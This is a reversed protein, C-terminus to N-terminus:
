AYHQDPIETGGDDALDDVWESLSPDARRQEVMLDLAREGILRCKSAILLLTIFRAESPDLDHLAAYLESYWAEDAGCVMEFTDSVGELTDSLIADFGDGLSPEVSSSIEM